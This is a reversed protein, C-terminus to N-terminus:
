NHKQVAKVARKQLWDKLGQQDYTLDLRPHIPNDTFLRIRVHDGEASLHIEGIFLPFGPAARHWAVIVNECGEDAAGVSTPHALRAIFEKADEGEILASFTNTATATATGHEKFLAPYISFQQPPKSYYNVMLTAHFIKAAEQETPLTIPKPTFAAEQALAIRGPLLSTSALTLPLALALALARTRFRLCRPAISKPHKM